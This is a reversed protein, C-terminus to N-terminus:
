NKKGNYKKIEAVIACINLGIESSAIWIPIAISSAFAFVSICPTIIFALILSQEIYNLTTCVMKHKKGMLENQKVEKLFFITEDINKLRFEQSLSRWVHNYIKQYKEINNMLGIFKIIEISEEGKWIAENENKCKSCIFSLVLTKEFIYTIIPKEFKKYKGYIGCYLKKMKKTVSFIKTNNKQYDNPSLLNASDFLSKGKLLFDIFWVHSYGCM